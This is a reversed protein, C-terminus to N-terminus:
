YNMKKTHSAIRTRKKFKFVQVEDVRVSQVQKTIKIQFYPLCSISDALYFRPYPGRVLFIICFSGM